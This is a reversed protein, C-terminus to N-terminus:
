RAIKVQFQPEQINVSWSQNGGEKWEWTSNTWTDSHADGVHSCIEGRQGSPFYDGRGERVNGGRFVAFQQHCIFRSHQQIADMSNQNCAKTKSKKRYWTSENGALKQSNQAEPQTAAPHKQHEGGPILWEGPSVGRLLHEREGFATQLSDWCTWGCLWDCARLRLVDIRVQHAEVDLRGGIPFTQPLNGVDNIVFTSKM